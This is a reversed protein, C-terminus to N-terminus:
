RADLVSSPSFDLDPGASCLMNALVLAPTLRHKSSRSLTTADQSICSAHPAHSSYTMHTIRIFRTILTHSAHLAHSAIFAIFAPLLVGTRVHLALYNAPLKEKAYQRALELYHPLPRILCNPYMAEKMKGLQLTAFVTLNVDSSREEIRTYTLALPLHRKLEAPQSGPFTWVQIAEWGFYVVSKNVAALRASAIDARSKHSLCTCASLNTIGTAALSLVDANPIVALLDACDEVLMLCQEATFPGASEFEAWTSSVPRNTYATSHPDQRVCRDM